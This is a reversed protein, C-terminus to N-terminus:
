CLEDCILGKVSKFRLTLFMVVCDWVKIAATIITAVIKDKLM